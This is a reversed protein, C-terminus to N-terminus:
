GYRENANREDDVSAATSGISAGSDSRDFGVVRADFRRHVVEKAFRELELALLPEKSHDVLRLLLDDDVNEGSESREFARRRGISRTELCEHHWENLDCFASVLESAAISTGFSRLARQDRSIRAHYTRNNRNEEREDEVLAGRL